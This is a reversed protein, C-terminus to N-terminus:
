PNRDESFILSRLTKAIKNHGSKSFHVGDPYDDPEIIENTDVFVQNYKDAIEKMIKNYNKQKNMSGPLQTEIRQNAVNISLIIIKANTEKLLNNVILEFYNAFKRESIWSRKGRLKVLNSRFKSIINRYFLSTFVSFPNLSKQTSLRYFWLPVERTSSDVVGLNIIYQTPFIRICNDISKYVDKVTQAGYALNYFLCNNDDEQLIQYYNKNEPQELTPRVRLAVSNGIICIKRKDM